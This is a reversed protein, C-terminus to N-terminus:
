QKDAKPWLYVFYVMQNFLYPTINDRGDCNLKIDSNHAYWNFFVGDCVYQGVPMVKVNNFFKNLIFSSVTQDLREIQKGEAALKVLTDFTVDNWTNNIDDNRQVVFNGQYLGKYNMDYGNAAMMNICRNAQDVPYKRQYCWAEYEPVMQNRTPHIMVATEYQGDEFMEIIPDLVNVIGMSGDIRMMIDNSVYEFPHFRIHYCLWFPDEPYPNDVYKITWTSSTISKDDTVYVYEVYDKTKEYIDQPINHIREYGGINYTLVSYNRM